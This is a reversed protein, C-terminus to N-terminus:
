QTNSLIMYDYADLIRNNLEKHLQMVNKPRKQRIAEVIKRHLPLTKLKEASYFNDYLCLFVNIKRLVGAAMEDLYPNSAKHIILYFFDYVASLYAEFDYGKFAAEQRDLCDSLALFDKDTYTDITLELAYSLLMGRLSYLQRIQNHTFQAVRASRNPPLEVFGDQSLQQLAARVPSRGLELASCLYSETLVKGPKLKQTAIATKIKLYADTSPAGPKLGNM